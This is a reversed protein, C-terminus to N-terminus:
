MIYHMEHSEVSLDAEKMIYLSQGRSRWSLSKIASFKFLDLLPPVLLQPPQETSHPFLLPDPYTWYFLAVFNDSRIDELPKRMFSILARWRRSHMETQINVVKMRNFQKNCESKEWSSILSKPVLNRMSGQMMVHINCVAWLSVSPVCVMLFAVVLCLLWWGVEDPLNMSVNQERELWWLTCSTMHFESFLCFDAWEWKRKASSYIFVAPPSSICHIMVVGYLNWM